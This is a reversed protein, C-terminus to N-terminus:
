SSLGRWFKSENGGADPHYQKALRRYASKIETDTANKSVGLTNYPDIM